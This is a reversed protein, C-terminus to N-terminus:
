VEEVISSMMSKDIGVNKGKENYQKSHPAVANIIIDMTKGVVTLGHKVLTMNTTEQLAITKSLVKLTTQQNELKGVLSDNSAKAKEIVESLTIDENGLYKSLEKRKRNIEKINEARDLIQADINWLEDTKRQMLISQKIKYLEGLKEYAQIEEDVVEKFKILIDDM